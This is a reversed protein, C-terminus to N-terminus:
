KVPKLDEFGYYQYFFTPKAAGEVQNHTFFGNELYGIPIVPMDDAILKTMNELQRNFQAEQIVKYYTGLLGNINMNSYGGYNSAGDMSYLDSFDPIIGTRLTGIYLDFDQDELRKQYEDASVGQYVLYFHSDEMSAKMTEAIQSQFWDNQNYLVELYVSNYDFYPYTFRLNSLYRVRGDANYRSFYYSSSNNKGFYADMNNTFVHNSPIPLVVPQLHGLFATEYVDEYPMAAAMFRRFNVDSLYRHEHNFGLFYFYPSDYTFQRISQDDSYKEWETKMPSHLDIRKSLFMSYEDSVERVININIHRASQKIGINDVRSLKLYVMEQFDSYAYPGTGVPMLADYDDSEVYQESIIPFTLSYLNYYNMSNFRVDFISEDRIIVSEIYDAAYGYTSKENQKLYNFSYLVDASTLPRGDHFNKETLVFRFVKESIKEYSDICGNVLSYDTSVDFVPEYVLKLAQDVSYSNGDLPNLSDPNHMSLEITDKIYTSEPLTIIEEVTTEKEEYLRELNYNAIDEIASCGSLVIIVILLVLYSLKNM